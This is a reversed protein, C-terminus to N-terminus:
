VKTPNQDQQPGLYINAGASRLNCTTKSALLQAFCGTDTRKFHNIRYAFNDKWRHGIFSPFASHFNRLTGNSYLGRVM